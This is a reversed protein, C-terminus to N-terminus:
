PKPTNKSFPFLKSPIPLSSFLKAKTKQGDTFVQSSPTKSVRGEAERFHVSSFLKFKRSDVVSTKVSDLSSIGGM